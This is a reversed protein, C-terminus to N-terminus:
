WTPARRSTGTCPASAWAPGRPSTAFGTIYIWRDECVSWNWEPLPLTVTARGDPARGDVTIPRFSRPPIVGAVSPAAAVISGYTMAEGVDGKYNRTADWQRAIVEGQERQLLRANGAAVRAPEKSAIGEWARMIEDDFIGADNMERLAPLGGVVYARHMPMLDSFINKQMVLIQSQVRRLDDATIKAGM